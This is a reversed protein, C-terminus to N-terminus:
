DKCRWAEILVIMTLLSLTFLMFIPEFDILTTVYDKPNVTTIPTVVALFSMLILAFFIWRLRYEIARQERYSYALILTVAGLAGIFTLTILAFASHVNHYAYLTAIFVMTLCMYLASYFNDRSLLSAFGFIVILVYLVDLGISVVRM